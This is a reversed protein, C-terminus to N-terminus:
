SRRCPRRNTDKTPSQTSSETGRRCQINGARCRDFESSGGIENPDDTTVSTEAEKRAPMASIKSNTIQLGEAGHSQITNHWSLFEEVSLSYRRCAQEITIQGTHVAEV